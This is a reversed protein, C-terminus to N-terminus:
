WPRQDHQELYDNYQQCLKRSNIIQWIFMIFYIIMLPIGVIAGIGTVTLGIAVLFLILSGILIGVGKGVKGVYMHGVGQIGILGLLISLLLTTSESKWETPRHLKSDQSSKQSTSQQNKSSQDQKQAGCNQCFISESSLKKGCKGCYSESDKKLDKTFNTEVLKEKLEDFEQATIEGKALRNKLITLADDSYSIKDDFSPKEDKQGVPLLYKSILNDVYKQDSSYLDNGRKLRDLISSLRSDDGVKMDLLKEVKTVLEELM